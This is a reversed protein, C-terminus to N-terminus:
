PRFVCELCEECTYFYEDGNCTKFVKKCCKYEECTMCYCMQENRCDECYKDRNCCQSNECFNFEYGNEEQCDECFFDDCSDCKNDNFCKLCVHYKQNCGDCTMIETDLCKEDCVDCYDIIYNLINNVLHIENNFLKTDLIQKIEKIQNIQNITTM